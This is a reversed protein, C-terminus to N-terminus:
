RFNKPNSMTIDFKTDYLLTDSKAVEDFGSFM